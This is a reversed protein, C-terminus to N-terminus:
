SESSFAPNYIFDPLGGQKPSVQKPGQAEPHAGFECYNKATKAFQQSM